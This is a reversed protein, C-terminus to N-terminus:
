SGGFALVYAFVARGSTNRLRMAGVAQVVCTRLQADFPGASEVAVERITGEVAAFSLEISGELAGARSAYAGYCRDLAPGASRMAARLDEHPVAGRGDVREGRVVRVRPGIPENAHVEQVTDGERGVREEVSDPDECEEVGPPSPIQADRICQELQARVGHARHVLATVAERADRAVAPDSSGARVEADHILGVLRQLHGQQEAVCRELGRVEAVDSATVQAHAPAAPWVALVFTSLITRLATMPAEHHTADSARAPSVM